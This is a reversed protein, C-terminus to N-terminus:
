RGTPMSQSGMGGGAEPPRAGSTLGHMGNDQRQSAEKPPGTPMPVSSGGTSRKVSWIVAALAVVALIIVVPVPIKSLSTNV